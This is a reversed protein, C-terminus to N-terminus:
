HKRLPGTRRTWGSKSPWPLEATRNIWEYSLKEDDGRDWVDRLNKNLTKRVFNDLMAQKESKNRSTIEELKKEESELIACASQYKQLEELRSVNRAAKQGSQAPLWRDM